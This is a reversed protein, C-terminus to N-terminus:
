LSMMMEHPNSLTNFKTGSKDWVHHPRETAEDPGRQALFLKKLTVSM